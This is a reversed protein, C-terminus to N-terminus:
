ECLTATFQGDVEYGSGFTAWLGGRVTTDTVETVELVGSTAVMNETEGDIRVVFTINRALSLRYRGPERPVTLLIFDPQEFGNFSQCTLEEASLKTFFGEDDSLYRDTVGAVFAWPKANIQGALPAAAITHGPDDKEEEGCGLLSAALVMPLACRLLRM